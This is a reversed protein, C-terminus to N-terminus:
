RARAADGALGLERARVVAARRSPAGVKRLIATVHVSATKPSIFLRAGIERNTLGELLCGLVELERATLGLRDAIPVQDASAGPQSLGARRILDDVASVAAPADRHVAARRAEALVAAAEARKGAVLLARGLGLGTRGDLSRLETGAVVDRAHHWAAVAGDEDGVVEEAAANVIAAWAATDPPVSGGVERCREAVRAAVARFRAVATRAQEQVDHRGLVRAEELLQVHAEVGLACLHALYPTSGREEIREAFRAALDAALSAQGRLLAAEVELVPLPSLMEDWTGASALHRAAAPEDGDLLADAIQAEVASVRVRSAPLRPVRALLEHAEGHRGMALLALVAQGQLGSRYGDGLHCREVVQLGDRAADLGRQPWGHAVYGFAANHLIRTLVLGPHDVEGTVGVEAPDAELHQRAEAVLGEFASTGEEVRGLAHLASAATARAHCATVVLGAGVAADVASASTELARADQDSLLELQALTALAQARGPSTHLLRTAEDARHLLELAETRRATAFLYRAQQAAVAAYADGDGGPDIEDLAAQGLRVAAEPDGVLWRCVAAERAVVGRDHQTWAGAVSDGLRLAEELHFGVDGVAARTRAEAAAELHDRWAAPVNGAQEHHHALEASPRAGTLGPREVLVEVIRGHLTRQQGPLLNELAIERFLDHRFAISRTGEGAVLVHRRYAPELLEHVDGLPVEAVVALLEDTVERGAVAAVGLLTRTRPELAALDTAIQHRVSTPVHAAALDAGPDAV